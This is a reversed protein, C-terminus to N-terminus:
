LIRRGGKCNPLHSYPPFPKSYHLIFHGQQMIGHELIGCGLMEMWKGDLKVELEWSPHTFPFYTDVWRMETNDGFLYEALKMLTYKLNFEVVKVADLTHFQQKESTRDLSTRDFIQM